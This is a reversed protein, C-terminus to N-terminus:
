WLCAHALYLHYRGAEAKFGSSGDATIRDRWRSELRKFEGSAAIEQRLDEETWRGDILVGMAATDVQSEPDGALGPAPDGAHRSAGRRAAAARRPRREDGRASRRRLGGR